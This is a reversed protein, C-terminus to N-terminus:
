CNSDRRSVDTNREEREGRRISPQVIWGDHDGAIEAGVEEGKEQIGRSEKEM